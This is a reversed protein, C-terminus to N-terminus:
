SKAQFDRALGDVGDLGAAEIRAQRESKLQRAQEIGRDLADEAVFRKGVREEGARV